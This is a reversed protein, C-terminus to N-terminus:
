RQRLCDRPAGEAPLVMEAGCAACRWAVGSEASAGRRWRCMRTLGSGRKVWWLYAFVALALVPILAIM